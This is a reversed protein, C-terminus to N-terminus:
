KKTLNINSNFRFIHRFEGGIVCTLVPNIPFLQNDIYVIQM